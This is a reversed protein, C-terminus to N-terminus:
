GQTDLFEFVPNAIEPPAWDKIEAMAGAFRDPGLQRHLSLYEVLFDCLWPRMMADASAIKITKWSDLLASENLSKAVTSALAYIVTADALDVNHTFPYMRYAELAKESHLFAKSDNRRLYLTAVNYHAHGLQLISEGKQNELYETAQLWYKLAANPQKAACANGLNM